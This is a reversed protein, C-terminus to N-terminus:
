MFTKDELRFFLFPASLGKNTPEEVQARVLSRRILLFCNRWVISTKHPNCAMFNQHAIFQTIPYKAYKEHLTWSQVSSNSQGTLTSQGTDSRGSDPRYLYEPRTPLTWLRSAITQDSQYTDSLTSWIWKIIVVLVSCPTHEILAKPISGAWWRELWDDGHKHGLMILEAGIAHANEVVKDVACGRFSMLCDRGGQTTDQIRKVSVNTKVAWNNLRQM